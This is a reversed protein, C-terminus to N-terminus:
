HRGRAAGPIAVAPRWSPAVFARRHPKLVPASPPHLGTATSPSNEDHGGDGVRHRQRQCNGSQVARAKSTLLQRDAPNGVFSIAVSTASSKRPAPLVRPRAAPTPLLALSRRRWSPSPDSSLALVADLGRDPQLRACEPAAAVKIADAATSMACPHASRESGVGCVRVGRALARKTCPIRGSDPLARSPREEALVPGASAGRCGHAFSAQGRLNDGDLLNLREANIGRVDFLQGVRSDPLQGRWSAPAFCDRGDIAKAGPLARLRPATKKGGM